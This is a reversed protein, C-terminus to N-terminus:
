LDMDSARPGLTELFVPITPRVVASRETRGRSSGLAHEFVSACGRAARHRSTRSSEVPLSATSRECFVARRAVVMCIQGRRFGCRLGVGRRGPWAHYPGTCPPSAAEHKAWHGTKAKRLLLLRLAFQSMRVGPGRGVCSGGLYKAVLINVHSQIQTLNPLTRSREHVTTRSSVGSGRRM